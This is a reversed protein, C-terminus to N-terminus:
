GCSTAAPRASTKPHAASRGTLTAHTSRPAHLECPCLASGRQTGMGPQSAAPAHRQMSPDPHASRETRWVDSGAGAPSSSSATSAVRRKGSGKKKSTTLLTTISCSTVAAPLRARACSCPARGAAQCLGTRRPWGGCRCVPDQQDAKHKTCALIGRQERVGQFRTKRVKQDGRRTRRRAQQRQGLAQGSPGACSGITAWRHPGPGRGSGWRNGKRM